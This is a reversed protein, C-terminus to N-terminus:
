GIIKEIQLKLICEFWDNFDEINNVNNVVDENWVEEDLWETELLFNIASNYDKAVGIVENDADNIIVIVTQM